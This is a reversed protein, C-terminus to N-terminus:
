NYFRKMFSVPNVGMSLACLLAVFIKRQKEGFLSYRKNVFMNQQNNLFSSAMFKM